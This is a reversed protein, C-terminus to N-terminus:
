KKFEFGIKRPSVIDYFIMDGKIKHVVRNNMYDIRYKSRFNLLEIYGKSLDAREKEIAILQNEYEKIGQKFDEDFQKKSIVKIVEDITM